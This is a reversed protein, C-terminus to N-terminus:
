WNYELLKLKYTTGPKVDSITLSDDKFKDGKSLSDLYINGSDVMYGEDDYLKYSIIDYLSKSNGYTKKGSITIKLKPVYDTEFDYTVEKIQIISETNGLYDKVKLDLPLSGHKLKIDKVPLCYLASCKVEDFSIIDEKYVTFYVTGSSSTGSTIDSAPIRVNALHQEGSIQNTYYGFDEESVSKTEAYVEEDNENVIRIDIDVDAPISKGNKDQLDFFISYDDTDENFQFSWNNLSEISNLQAASCGCLLLVVLLSIVICIKKM